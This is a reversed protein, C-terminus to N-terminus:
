VGFQRLHHDTHKYVYQGVQEHTMTGFFPHVFGLNTCSAYNELQEIWLQKEQEFNGNGKIKFTPHTPQNHKMPDANKLIGKLVMAGFLRGMFLRAYQTKGQYMQESLNCHRLMQYVNMKGWKAKSDADLQNIRAVFHEIEQREFISKM